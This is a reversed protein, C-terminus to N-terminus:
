VKLIKDMVFQFTPTTSFIGYTLYNYQFLRWNTNITFLEKYKKEITLQLYTGKLYFIIFFKGESLSSLVEEIKSLPYVERNVVKHVRNKFEVCTRLQTSKKFVPVIPSVWKSHKVEFIVKEQLLKDLEKNVM